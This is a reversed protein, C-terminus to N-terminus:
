SGSATPTQSAPVWDIARVFFSAMQARTVLQDPCYDLPAASCGRTVGTQFVGELAALVSPDLGEVDGFRSTMVEAADLHLFAGIMMIAM